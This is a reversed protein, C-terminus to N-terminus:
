SRKKIFKAPVGGYISYPDTSKTLVSGAGIISGKSLKLGPMIIANTGIWVDDEIITPKIVSEGQLVMPIERSSYKHMKGLITTGAAIMVYSGIIVNDLKSNENIQCYNGISVNSGKGIYVKSQIKCEKGITIIRRLTKIRIKNFLSGLPFFSNPLNYAFFYYFSLYVFKM